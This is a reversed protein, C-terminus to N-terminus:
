PIIQLEKMKRRLHEAKEPGYVDNLTETQWHKAASDISKQVIDKILTQQSEPVLSVVADIVTTEIEGDRMAFATTLKM